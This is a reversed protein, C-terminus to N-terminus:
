RSRFDQGHVLTPKGEVSRSIASARRNVGVASGQGRAFAAKGKASSPQKMCHSAKSCGSGKGRFTFRKLDM